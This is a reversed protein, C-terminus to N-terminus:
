SNIIIKKTYTEGKKTSVTLLYNGNSIGSIDLNEINNQNSFDKILRGSNDYLRIQTIEQRNINTKCIINTKAPNIINFYKDNKITEQVSLPTPSCTSNTSTSNYVTAAGYVITSYTRIPNGIQKNIMDVEYLTSSFPYIYNLNLIYAKSPSTESSVSFAAYINPINISMFPCSQAPNLMNIELIGTTTTLFLRGEYFFLDGGSNQGNPINDMVTFTGSSIDYRYLIGFAGIAYIFNGSDATLSNIQSNFSGLFECASTANNRRYLNGSNTVYYFNSFSDIAIDTYTEFLVVTPPCVPKVIESADSVNFRFIKNSSGYTTTVYFEQSYLQISILFIGLFFAKVMSSM